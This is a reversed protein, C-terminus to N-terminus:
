FCDTIFINEREILVSGEYGRKLMFNRVAIRLRSCLHNLSAFEKTSTRSPKLYAETTATYYVGEAAYVM